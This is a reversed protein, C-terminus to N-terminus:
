AGTDGFCGEVMARVQARFVDVERDKRCGFECGRGGHGVGGDLLGGEAEGAVAM